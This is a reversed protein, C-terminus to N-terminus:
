PMAIRMYRISLGSGVNQRTRCRDLNAGNSAPQSREIERCYPFCQMFLSPIPIGTLFLFDPIDRRVNSFAPAAILM